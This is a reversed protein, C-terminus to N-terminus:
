RGAILNGHIPTVLSNKNSQISSAFEARQPVVHQLVANIGGVCDVLLHRHCVPEFVDGFGQGILLDTTTCSKAANAACDSTYRECTCDGAHSEGLGVLMAWLASVAGDTECVTLFLAVRVTVAESIGITFAHASTIGVARLRWSTRTVLVAGLRANRSYRYAALGSVVRSRLTVGCRSVFGNYVVKNFHM